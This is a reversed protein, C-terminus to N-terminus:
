IVFLLAKSYPPNWSYITGPRNGTLSIVHTLHLAFYQNFSEFPYTYRCCAANLDDLIYNLCKGTATFYLLEFTHVALILSSYLKTILKHRLGSLYRASNIHEVYHQERRKPIYKNLSYVTFLKIM